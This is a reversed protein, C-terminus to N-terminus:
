AGNIVVIRYPADDTTTGDTPTQRAEFTAKVEAENNDQGSVEYQTCIATPFIIDVYGGGLRNYRMRLNTILDGVAILTSADYPTITFTSPTGTSTAVSSAPELDDIQATGLQIFTGEITPKFGTVRDLGAIPARKGDFEVNRMEKNPNFSMGGRSVGFPTVTSAIERSLVAVDLLVNAPLSTTYGSPM